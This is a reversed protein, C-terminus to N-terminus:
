SELMCIYEILGSVQWIVMNMIQVVCKMNM